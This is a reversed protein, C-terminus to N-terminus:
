QRHRPGLELTYRVDTWSSGRFSDPRSAGDARFGAAQYFQRAQRNDDLVWLIVQRWHRARLDDLCHAMLAQGLGQGWSEPHVYMAWIEAVGQSAPADQDRSAGSDMFGRLVDNTEVVWYRQEHTKQKLFKRRKATWERISLSDLVSDLLMGRYARQWSRVHIEAVTGADAVRAPRVTVESQQGSM